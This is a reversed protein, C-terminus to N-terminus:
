EVTASTNTRTNLLVNVAPSLAESPVDASGEANANATAAASDNSVAASSDASAAASPNLGTAAADAHADANASQGHKKIGVEMDAATGASGNGIVDATSGANARVSKWNAESSGL